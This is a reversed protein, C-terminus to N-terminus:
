PEVGTPANIIALARKLLDWNLKKCQVNRVYLVARRATDEDCELLGALEKTTLVEEGVRVISVRHKKNADRYRQNNYSDSM